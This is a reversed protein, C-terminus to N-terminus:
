ALGCVEERLLTPADDDPLLPWKVCAFSSTHTHPTAHMQTSIHFHKCANTHLRLRCEQAHACMYECESPSHQQGRTIAPPTHIHTHLCPSAFARWVVSVTGLLIHLCVCLSVSCLTHALVALHMQNIRSCVCLSEASFLTSIPCRFVSRDTCMGCLHQQVFVPLHPPQRLHTDKHRYIRGPMQTHNNTTQARQDPLACVGKELM